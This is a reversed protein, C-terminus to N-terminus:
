WGLPRNGPDLQYVFTYFYEIFAVATEHHGVNMFNVICNPFTQLWKLVTVSIFHRGTEECERQMGRRLCRLVWKQPIHSSNSLFLAILCHIIAWISYLPLNICFFSSINSGSCSNQRSQRVQLHSVKPFVQEWAPLGQSWWNKSINFTVHSATPLLWPSKGLMWTSITGPLLRKAVCSGGEQVLPTVVGPNALAAGPSHVVLGRPLRRSSRGCPTSPVLPADLPLRPAHQSLVPCGPLRWSSRSLPLLSLPARPRRPFPSPGPATHTNNRPLSM